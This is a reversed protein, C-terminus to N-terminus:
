EPNSAVLSVVDSSDPDYLTKLDLLWESLRDNSTITCSYPDLGAAIARSKAKMDAHSRNRTIFQVNV